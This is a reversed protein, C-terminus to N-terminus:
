NNTISHFYNKIYSIAKQEYVSLTKEHTHIMFHHFSFPSDKIPVLCIKKNLFDFSTKISIESGIMVVKPNESILQIAALTTSIRLVPNHPFFKKLYEQYFTLEHPASTYAFTHDVVDDTTVYSKKSLPSQKNVVLCVPYSILLSISLRNKLAYTYILEEEEGDWFKKEKRAKILAYITEKLFEPVEFDIEISEDYYM